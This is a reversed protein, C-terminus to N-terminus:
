EIVAETACKQGYSTDGVAQYQFLANNLNGFNILNSFHFIHQCAELLHRKLNVRCIHHIRVLVSQFAYRYYCADLQDKLYSNEGNLQKVAAQTARVKSINPLHQYRCYLVTFPIFAYFMCSSCSVIQVNYAAYKSIKNYEDNQSENIVSFNTGELLEEM